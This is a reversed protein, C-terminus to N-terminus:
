HSTSDRSLTQLSNLQMNLVATFAGTCRYVQIYKCLVCISICVCVQFSIQSGQEVDGMHTCTVKFTCVAVTCSMCPLRLRKQPIGHNNRVSVRLYKQPAICIKRQVSPCSIEVSESQFHCFGSPSSQASCCHELIPFTIALITWIIM